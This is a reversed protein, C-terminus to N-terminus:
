SARGIKAEYYPDKGDWAPHPKLNWGRNPTDVWYKIAYHMEKICAQNPNSGHRTLERVTNQIETRLWRTM